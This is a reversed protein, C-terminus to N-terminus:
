GEKTVPKEDKFYEDFTDEAINLQDEALKLEWRTRQLDQAWKNPDWNKTGVQLSDTSDPAFDTLSDVKLKLESVKNRLTNVVTQQAIEAQTALAGARKKLTNSTNDSILQQFKNM